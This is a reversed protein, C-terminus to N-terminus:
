PEETPYLPTRGRSHHRDPKQPEARILGQDMLRHICYYCQTWERHAAEMDSRCTGPHARIYALMDDVLTM